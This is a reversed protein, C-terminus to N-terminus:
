IQVKLVSLRSIDFYGVVLRLTSHGFPVGCVITV